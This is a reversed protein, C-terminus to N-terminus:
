YICKVYNKIVIWKGNIKQYLNIEGEGALPGCFYSMDFICYNKDKSFIPISFESYCKVYKKDFIEKGNKEKLIEDMEKCSIINAYKIKDKKWEYGKFSRIQERMFEFDNENFYATDKYLGLGDNHDFFDIWMCSKLFFTETKDKCITSNIFDYIDNETPIDQSACIVPFLIYLIILINKINIHYM